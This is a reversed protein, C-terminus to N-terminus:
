AGAQCEMCLPKEYKKVSFDNVKKTIKQGCGSCFYEDTKNGQPGPKDTEQKTPPTPDAPANLAPPDDHFVRADEADYDVLPLLLKAPSMLSSKLVDAMKIQDSAIDMVYNNTPAGSKPDRGKHPRIILKLPIMAVRGGTLTQIFTIASNINRVSNFSGTDIQWIGMGPVTPLMVQLHGRLHCKGSAFHECFEPDCEKEVLQSEVMEIARLGNGKCMLGAGSYRKYAQPFFDERDNLPFMIDLEKPQDGYVAKFTTAAAEPTTDSPAVVFYDTQVPYEKGNGNTKKIGLHIKGVRPLRLADSVGKISTFDDKMNRLRRQSEDQKEWYDLRQEMDMAGLAKIDDMARNLAQVKEEPIM